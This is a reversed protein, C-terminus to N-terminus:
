FQKICSVLVGQIDCKDVVIDKMRKNEPHLVILGDRHYLRKLTTEGDVFAVVVNGDEATEQKKVVLLDGENIGADVMSNGTAHLMYLDGDGFISKPLAYTEEFEETSDIPQGCKITGVLSAMTLNTKELQPLPAIRGNESRKLVGQAELCLVYRRVTSLTKIRLEEMIERYSPTRGHEKQYKLNYQKVEELLKPNMSRM